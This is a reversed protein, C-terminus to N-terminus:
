TYYRRKKYLLHSIYVYLLKDLLKYLVKKKPNIEGNNHFILFSM